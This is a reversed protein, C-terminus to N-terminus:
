PVATPRPRPNNSRSRRGRRRSAIARRGSPTRSRRATPASRLRSALAKERGQHDGRPRRAMRGPDQGRCAPARSRSRVGAGSDPESATTTRRDSSAPSTRLEVTITRVPQPARQGVTRSSAGTRRVLSGSTIPDRHGRDFSVQVASARTRCGASFASVMYRCFLKGAACESPTEPAPGCLKGGSSTPWSM